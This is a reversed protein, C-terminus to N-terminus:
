EEELRYDYEERDEKRRRLFWEGVDGEGYLNMEGDRSVVFYCKVPCLSFPPMCSLNKSWSTSSDIPGPPVFSVSSMTLTSYRLAEEELRYDYEERDEKRRRLYWEGVDGEGYLDMEGDRRECEEELRYDYEERHEKRRRLYREGVVGEGYLDM